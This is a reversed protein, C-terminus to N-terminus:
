AAGAGRALEARLADLADLFAGPDDQLRELMTGVDSPLPGSALLERAISLAGPLDNRALLPLRDYPDV